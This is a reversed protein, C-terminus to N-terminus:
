DNIISFDKTIFPWALIIAQALKLFLVCPILKRRKRQERRGRGRKDRRREEGKGGGRRNKKEEEIRRRKNYFQRNHSWDVLKM